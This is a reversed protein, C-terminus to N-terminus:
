LSFNLRHKRMFHAVGPEYLTAHAAPETKSSKHRSALGISCREIHIPTTSDSFPTIVCNPFKRSLSRGSRYSASPREGDVTDSGKLFTAIQQLCVLGMRFRPASRCRRFPRLTGRAHNVHPGRH